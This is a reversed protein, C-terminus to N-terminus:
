TLWINQCLASASKGWSNRGLEGFMDSTGARPVDVHDVGPQMQHTEAQYTSRVVRQLTPIQHYLPDIHTEERGLADAIGLAFLTGGQYRQAEGDAVESAFNADTVPRLAMNSWDLVGSRVTSGTDCYTNAFRIVMNALKRTKVNASNELQQLRSVNCSPDARCMRALWSLYGVFSMRQQFQHKSM